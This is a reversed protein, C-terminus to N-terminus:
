NKFYLEGEALNTVSCRHGLPNLVKPCKVNNNTFLQYFEYISKNFSINNRKM